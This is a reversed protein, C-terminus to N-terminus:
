GRVSCDKNVNRKTRYSYDTGFKKKPLVNLGAFLGLAKDMNYDDIRRLCEKRLLKLFLLSLLVADAPAM